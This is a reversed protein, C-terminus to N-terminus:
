RVAATASADAVTALQAHRGRGASADVLRLLTRVTPAREGAVVRQLAVELVLVLLRIRQVHALETVTSIACLVRQGRVLTQLM